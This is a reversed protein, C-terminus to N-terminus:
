KMIFDKRRSVGDCCVMRKLWEMVGDGCNCSCSLKRKVWTLGGDCCSCTVNCSCLSNSLRSRWGNGSVRTDGSDEAQGQPQAESGNLGDANATDSNQPRRRSDSLLNVGAAAATVSSDASALTMLSSLPLETRPKLSISSEVAALTHLIIESPLPPQLSLEKKVDKKTDSEKKKTGTKGCICEPLLISLVCSSLNCVSATLSSLPPCIKCCQFCGWSSASRSTPGSATQTGSLLPVSLDGSVEVPPSGSSESVAAEGNSTPPTSSSTVAAEQKKGCFCSCSLCSTLMSFCGCCSWPCCCDCYWCNKPICCCCTNEKEEKKRAEADELDQRFQTDLRILLASPKDIAQSSSTPETSGESPIEAALAASGPEMVESNFNRSLNSDSWGTNKHFLVVFDSEKHKSVTPTTQSKAGSESQTAYEYEDYDDRNIIQLTWLKKKQPPSKIDNKKRRFWGKFCQCDLCKPTKCCTKCCGCLSKGWTGKKADPTEHNESRLRQTESPSPDSQAAAPSAPESQSETVSFDEEENFRDTESDVTVLSPEAGGEKEKVGSLSEARAVDLGDSDPSETQSFSEKESHDKADYDVVFAELKWGIKTIYTSGGSLMPAVGVGSPGLLESFRLQIHSIKASSTQSESITGARLKKLRDCFKFCNCLRCNRSESSPDSLEAGQDAETNEVFFNLTVEWKGDRCDRCMFQQLIIMSLDDARSTLNCGLLEFVKRYAEDKSGQNRRAKELLERLLAQIPNPNPKDRDSEKVEDFCSQFLRSQHKLKSRNGAGTGLNSKTGTPRIGAINQSYNERESMVKTFSKIWIESKVPNFIHDTKKKYQEDDARHSHRDVGVGFIKVDPNVWAIFDTLSADSDGDPVLNRYRNRTSIHNQSQARLTKETVSNEKSSRSPIRASMPNRDASSSASAGSTTQRTSPSVQAPTKSSSAGSSSGTVPVSSRRHSAESASSSAAQARTSSSSGTSSRASGTRNGHTRRFKRVNLGARLKLARCAQLPNHLFVWLLFRVTGITTIM